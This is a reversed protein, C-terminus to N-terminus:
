GRLNGRRRPRARPAHEWVPTGGDPAFRRLDGTDNVLLVRAPGERDITVVSVSATDVVIRQFRALPAGALDALVIRVIDGHTGVVVRGRRHRRAIAHLEAVARTQAEEFSEGGGPFRFTEPHRQVDGWARLRRLRALPRGTWSGADMEILAAREVVPLRCTDALPRLTEVCRELPSSYVATPRLPALREALADAQARGRDDLVIGATQGYLTRGTHATLGHRVLFLTTM